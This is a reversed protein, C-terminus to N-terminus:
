GVAAAHFSRWQVCDPAAAPTMDITVWYAQTQWIERSRQCHCACDDKSICSRELQQAGQPGRHYGHSISQRQLAFYHPLDIAAIPRTIRCSSRTSKMLVFANNSGTFAATANGKRRLRILLSHNLFDLRDSVGSYTITTVVRTKIFESWGLEGTNEQSETM